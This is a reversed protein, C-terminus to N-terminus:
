EGKLLDVAIKDYYAKAGPLCVWFVVGLFLLLFALFAGIQFWAVNSESLVAKVLSMNM